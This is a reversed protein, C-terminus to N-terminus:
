RGESVVYEPMVAVLTLPMPRDKKFVLPLQRAYDGPWEIQVDGTFPPPASGMPTSPDRFDMEVLADDSQGAKGGLSRHVRVTMHHARKIKGQATGNGSGGEPDMLELFGESPLGVQVKSAAAQLTIQGAAVTRNPHWAGAM